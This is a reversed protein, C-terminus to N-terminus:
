SSVETVPMVGNAGVLSEVFGRASAADAARKERTARRTAVLHADFQEPTMEGAVLHDVIREVLDAKEEPTLTEVLEARLDDQETSTQSM